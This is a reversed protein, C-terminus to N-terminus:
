LLGFMTNINREKRKWGKPGRMQKTVAVWGENDNLERRPKMPVHTYTPLGVTEVIESRGTNTCCIM